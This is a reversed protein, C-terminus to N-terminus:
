KLWRAEQPIRTEDLTSFQYGSVIIGRDASYIVLLNPLTDSGRRAIPLVAITPTIAAAIHGGRAAYVVLHAEDSRAAQHLDVLYQEATTGDGWQGDAVVRKVLHYFLSEERAALSRGQYQWGREAVGVRKPRPEFPATALRDVIREIEEPTARRGTQILARILRDTPHPSLAPNVADKGDM